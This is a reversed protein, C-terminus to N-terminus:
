QPSLFHIRQPATARSNGQIAGTSNWQSNFIGDMGEMIRGDSNNKTKNHAHTRCM